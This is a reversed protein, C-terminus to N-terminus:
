REVEPMGKGRGLKELIARGRESMMPTAVERRKEERRKEELGLVNSACHKRTALLVGADKLTTLMDESVKFGLRESLYDPDLPVCNGTEAGLIILGIHLFRESCPLRRLTYDSLIEKYIKVWPPNRKTYHQYRELNKIKGYIVSRLM